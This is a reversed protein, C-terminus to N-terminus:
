SGTPAAWDPRPILCFPHGDPDAFVTEALATAGLGLVQTTAADVDDVMVDLHVQQPVAPDPWTPTQFDRARQFALGLARDSEAVVVFDDDAYTIPQGLLASWFEAAHRPEPSDVVTHHLRGIM